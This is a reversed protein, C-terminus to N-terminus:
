VVEREESARIRRLTCWVRARLSHSLRGFFFLVAKKRSVHNQWATVGVKCLWDHATSSSMDVGSMLRTPSHKPPSPTSFTVGRPPLAPNPRPRRTSVHAIHPISVNGPVPIPPEATGAVSCPVSPPPGATANSPPRQTTKFRLYAFFPRPRANSAPKPEIPSLASLRNGFLSSIQPTKLPLTPIIRRFRSQIQSNTPFPFHAGYIFFPLPQFELKKSGKPDNPLLHLNSLFLSILANQAIKKSARPPSPSSTSLLCYVTSLTATPKPPTPSQRNPIASQPTPSNSPISLISLIFSAPLPPSSSNVPHVRSPRPRRRWSAPAPPSKVPHVPYM